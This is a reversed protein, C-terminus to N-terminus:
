HTKIDFIGILVFFGSGSVVFVKLFRWTSISQSPICYVAKIIDLNVSMRSLFELTKDFTYIYQLQYVQVTIM